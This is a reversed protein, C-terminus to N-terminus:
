ITTSLQSLHLQLPLFSFCAHICPVLGMDLQAWLRHIAYLFYWFPYSFYHLHVTLEGSSRWCNHCNYCSSSQSCGNGHSRSNSPFWGIFFWINFSPRLSWVTLSTYVPFPKQPTTADQPLPHIGPRRPVIAYSCGQPIRHHRPYVEVGLHCRM